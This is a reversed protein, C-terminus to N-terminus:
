SSAPEQSGAGSPVLFRGILPLEWVSEARAVAMGVPLLHEPADYVLYRPQWDPDFKANFKWLSEIQMSGSMRRLIWREVRQATSDGSEGALVARMTAFNLGLGRRGTERLHRATEVVLFDTLGNPHDGDDRRMLDLSYGDIGPAPVYQCFAVPTGTQDRAVALLLGRDDPDFARGLTMSFGREVDGRRSKTMVEALQARLTADLDAPDHFSITYGYKAIRNVAQRLSKNKGGELSLRTVDVVAEDGVYMDHMGSARYAPLWDEGAGLVALPWAHADVHRRFAAWVEDREAPPGIPDPSVICAGGYIAYAVVTDGHFFFHKDSRLAFYDLTGRGHRAFIERARELSAESPAMRHVVPRSSLWLAAIVLAITVAVLPPTLFEDVRHPLAVLRIGVTRGAVAEVARWPSLVAWRRNVALTVELAAVSVAFTAAAGGALTALGRALSPRDWAAAFSRRQVLLFAALAVSLAAEELDVGKILHLASSGALLALSATWAQRQGRRIGRALFLLALGVLAVLADATQSAALPVVDRLIELRDRLPPTVASVLDVLGVVAMAAAALRRVRRLRLGPDAEPPWSEGQPFTAVVAPHPDRVARHRAAVRELVTAGALDLRAHLLRVHLDAGAELEVWSLLRHALFVSPLWLWSQHEEVVEGAAGTSAFFGAGLHTLEPRLTHGTILGAHGSTVLARAESRAATNIATAPEGLAARRVAALTHRGLLALAAVVLVLDIISTAGILALRHEWGSGGLTRGPHTVLAYSLPFKVAFAVVFPVLLWWGYRAVRRYFLRSALFRPLASPDTLRDRGALWSAGGLAPLVETLVHHGLPTEAPNRPDDVQQRPDFRRGSEVRVLRTGAGTDVRLDVALALEAGLRSAVAGAARADWALRGDRSGPVCVVRRGAGAAFAAVASALGPHADLAAGARGDALLDLLNGAIVLVGPGEWASVAQALGATASTSATTAEGTLLLDSVVVVRGGVPVSVELLDSVSSDM